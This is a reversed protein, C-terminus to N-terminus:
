LFLAIGTLAIMSGPILAWWQTSRTFWWTLFSTAYWGLAFAILFVGAEGYGTTVHVPDSTLLVGLGISGLISGLVIMDVRHRRIGKLVNDLCLALWIILGVHFMDVRFLAFLSCLAILVTGCAAMTFLASEQTRPSERPLSQELAAPLIVVPSVVSQQEERRYPMSIGYM